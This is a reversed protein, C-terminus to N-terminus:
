TGGEFGSREGKGVDQGFGDDVRAVLGGGRRERVRHAKRM